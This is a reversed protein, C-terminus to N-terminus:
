TDKTLTGKINGEVSVGNLTGLFKGAVEESIKKIGVLKSVRSYLAQPTRGFYGAMDLVNEDNCIMEILLNDEEETWRKKAREGYKEQLRDRHERIAKDTEISLKLGKLLIPVNKRYNYYALIMDEKKLNKQNNLRQVQKLANQFKDIAEQTTDTRFAEQIVKNDVYILDESKIFEEEM